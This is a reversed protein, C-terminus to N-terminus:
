DREEALLRMSYHLSNGSVFSRVIARSRLSKPFQASGKANKMM